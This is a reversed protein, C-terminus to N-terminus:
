RLYYNYHENKILYVRKVYKHTLQSEGVCIVLLSLLLRFTM